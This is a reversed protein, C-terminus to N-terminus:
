RKSDAPRPSEDLKSFTVLIDGIGLGACSDGGSDFRQWTTVFADVKDKAAECHGARLDAQIQLLAQKGEVISAAIWTVAATVIIIIATRM